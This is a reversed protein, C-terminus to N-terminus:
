HTADKVARHFVQSSRVHHDNARALSQQIGSYREALTTSGQLGTETRSGPGCTATPVPGLWPNAAFAPAGVTVVPGAIVGALLLASVHKITM